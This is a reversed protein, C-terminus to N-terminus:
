GRRAARRIRWLALWREVPLLHWMIVRFYAFVGHAELYAIINAPNVRPRTEWYEWSARRLGGMQQNLM